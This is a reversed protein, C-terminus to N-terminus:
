YPDHAEELRFPMTVLSVAIGPLNFPFFHLLPYGCELALTSGSAADAHIQLLM